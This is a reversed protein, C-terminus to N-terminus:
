IYKKFLASAACSISFASLFASLLKVRLSKLTALYSIVKIPSVSMPDGHGGCVDIWPGDWAIKSEMGIHSVINCIGFMSPCEEDYIPFDLTEKSEERREKGFRVSRLM